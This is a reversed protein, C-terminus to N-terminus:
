AGVQFPSETIGELPDVGFEAPPTNADERKDDDDGSVMERVKSGVRRGFNFAPGIVPINVEQTVPNYIMAEQFDMIRTGITAGEYDDAGLAVAVDNVISSAGQYVVNDPSAPNVKNGHEQWTARLFAQLKYVVAVLVITIVLFVIAKIWGFASEGNM